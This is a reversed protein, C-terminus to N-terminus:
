LAFNYKPSSIFKVTAILSFSSNIEMKTFLIAVEFDLIFDISRGIFLDQCEAIEKQYIELNIQSDLCSFTFHDLTGKKESIDGRLIFPSLSAQINYFFNDRSMM